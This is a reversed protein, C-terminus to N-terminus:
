EAVDILWAKITSNVPWLLVVYQGPEKPTFLVKLVWKLRIAEDPQYVPKLRTEVVSPTTQGNLPFARATFTGFWAQVQDVVYKLTKDEPVAVQQELDLEITEGVKVTDM